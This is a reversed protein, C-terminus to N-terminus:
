RLSAAIRLAEDRSRAGEIRLTRGDQEWLLTDGALRLTEARVAGDQDLYLFQHPAGAIWYGRGGNVTLSEVTTAPDVIKKFLGPDTAGRFQTVLLGVAGGLPRDPRPRYVLAVQGEVPASGVYVEDPAGLEPLTPVLIPYPVRRRAEDLTLPPGFGFAPDVPSRTATATPALTPTPTRAATGISGATASPRTTGNAPSSSTPTAYTITVGRLGLRDAIARPGGPALALGVGLLVILTVVAVTPRRPVHWWTPRSPPVPTAALRARVRGALDPTPPHDLHPGLDRLARELAADDPPRAREAM